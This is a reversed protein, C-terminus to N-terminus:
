NTGRGVDMRSTGLLCPKNGTGSGPRTRSSICPCRVRTPRPAELLGGGMKPILTLITHVLGTLFPSRFLPHVNGVTISGASQEISAVMLNGALTVFYLEKGDGRWLAVPVGGGTSIQWKGTGRPFSTLYAEASGSEASEYAIWKGLVFHCKELLLLRALKGIERRKWGRVELRRCGIQDMIGRAPADYRLARGVPREPEV